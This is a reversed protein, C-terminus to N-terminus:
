APQAASSQGADGVHAPAPSWSRDDITAVLLQRLEDALAVASVMPLGELVVVVACRDVHTRVVEIRAPGHRRGARWSAEAVHARLSGVVDAGTVAGSTTVTVGGATLSAPLRDIAVLHPLPVFVEFHTTPM